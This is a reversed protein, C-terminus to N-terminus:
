IIGGVGYGSCPICVPKGGKERLYREFVYEGCVSCKTKNFSGKVPAYTFDPKEEVKFMSESPQEYVWNIIEDSVEHSIESPEVGNKRYVFFEFKGMEDIFAPTLSYRVAGKKPYYFTAALKGYWTKELLGKAYTAGTAVQVGDVFCTQPHGIGIESFVFLGHDKERPVDLHELALKGMRYGIPVFPCRHGHFEFAWEPPIYQKTNEM